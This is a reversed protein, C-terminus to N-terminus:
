KSSLSGSIPRITQSIYGIKRLTNQLIVFIPWSQVRTQPVERRFKKVKLFPFSLPVRQSLKSSLSGSIPRITQSIYGIKRLTNQLIAFIPWNQVRNQPV